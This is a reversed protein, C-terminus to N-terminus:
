YGINHVNHLNVMSNLHITAEESFVLHDNFDDYEMTNQKASCFEFRKNHDNPHLM